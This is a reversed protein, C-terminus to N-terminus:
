SWSRVERLNDATIALAPVTLVSLMAPLLIILKDLEEVLGAIGNNEIPEWSVEPTSMVLEVSGGM